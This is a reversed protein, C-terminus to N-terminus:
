SSGFKTHFSKTKVTFIVYISYVTEVFGVHVSVKEMFCLIMPVTRFLDSICNQMKINISSTKESAENLWLHGRSCSETM